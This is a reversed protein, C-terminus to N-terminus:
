IEDLYEVIEKSRSLAHTYAHRLGTRVPVGIIIVCVQAPVFKLSLTHRTKYFSAYLANLLRFSPTDKVIYM